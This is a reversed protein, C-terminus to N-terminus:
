IPYGGRIPPSDPSKDLPHSDEEEELNRRDMAMESSNPRNPFCLAISNNLPQDSIFVRPKSRSNSICSVQAVKLSLVLCYNLHNATLLQGVRRNEMTFLLSSREFQSPESASCAAADGTAINRAGLKSVMEHSKKQVKTIDDM